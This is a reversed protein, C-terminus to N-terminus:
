KLTEIKKLFHLTKVYNQDHLIYLKIDQNKKSLLTDHKGHQYMTQIFTKLSIFNWQPTDWLKNHGM